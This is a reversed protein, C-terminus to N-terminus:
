SKQVCVCVFFINKEVRSVSFVFYSFEFRMSLDWYLHSPSRYNMDINGLRRAGLILDRRFHKLYTSMSSYSARNVKGNLDLNEFGSEFCRCSEHVRDTM